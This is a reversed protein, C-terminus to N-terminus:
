TEVLRILPLPRGSGSPLYVRKSGHHVNPKSYSRPLSSSHGAQNTLFHDMRDHLELNEAQLWSVKERLDQILTDKEQMVTRSNQLQEIMQRVKRQHSKLMDDLHHIKEKLSAVTKELEVSRAQLAGDQEKQGRLQELELENEKMRLLLDQYEKEMGGMLRGMEEVQEKREAATEEAERRARSSKEVEQQCQRLKDEYTCREAQHKREAEQLRAFLRQTKERMSEGNDMPFQEEQEEPAPRQWSEGYHRIGNQKQVKDPQLYEAGPKSPASRFDERLQKLSTRAEQIHRVENKLQSVNWEHNAKNEARAKLYVKIIEEDGETSKVLESNLTRPERVPRPSILAFPRGVPRCKNPDTREPSRESRLTLRLTRVHDPETETETELSLQQLTCLNNMRTWSRDRVCVM